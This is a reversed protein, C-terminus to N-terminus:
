GALREPSFPALVPATEGALIAQALAAGTAPALTMGLMQHGTAAYANEYGPLRGIAPLTDPLIPRMGVWAAARDVGPVRLSEAMARRLARIRREDIRQNLGSFEMGWFCRLANRYPVCGTLADALYVPRRLQEAPRDITLSCGKGATTPLRVGLQRAVRGTQAGAALVVADVELSDAETRSPAGSATRSRAADAGAGASGDEAASERVAVARVRSRGRSVGAVAREFGEAVSHERIEAGSARLSAALGRSVTEPRVHGDSEVLLGGGFGPRLLPEMERLEDAAVSRCAGGGRLVAEMKHRLAGKAPGGDRAVVLLGARAREFEVGDAALETWRENAGAALAALARAGREYADPGCHRRMLRLWRLVGPAFPRVYLANEPCRAQWLLTRWTLGPAAVPVALSPCVLGGNGLSCGGGTRGAEIVLPDGGAKKVFYAVALGVVGGGVVAVRM